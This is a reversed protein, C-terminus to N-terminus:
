RGGADCLNFEMIGKFDPLNEFAELKVKKKIQGSKFLHAKMHNKCMAYVTDKDIGLDMFKDIHADIYKLSVIEHGYHTIREVGNKVRLRTTEPKGLDHFIASVLLNIDGPYHTDAFNFVLEIHNYVSGEPHYKADQMCDKLTKILDAPLRNIYTEFKTM